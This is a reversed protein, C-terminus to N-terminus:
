NKLRLSNSVVSISSLGMALSALAPPFMWGTFPYFLGAALPICLSNYILSLFLNQRIINMARKSLNLFDYAKSIDGHILTVDSTNIAVDTGTGMALSLDALALAPADNIGDGLMAVKKGESQLKEVYKAKDSPLASSVFHDISVEEAV